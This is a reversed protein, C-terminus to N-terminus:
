KRRAKKNNEFVYYDVPTSGVIPTNDEFALGTVAVQRDCDFDVLGIGSALNDSGNFVDTVRGVWKELPGLFLTADAVEAGTNDWMKVSCVCDGTEINTVAMGRLKANGTYPDNRRDINM